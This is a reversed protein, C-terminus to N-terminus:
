WRCKSVVLVWQMWQMDLSIFTGVKNIRTEKILNLSIIRQGCALVFFFSLIVFIKIYKVGM